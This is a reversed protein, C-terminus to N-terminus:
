LCPSNLSKELASLLEEDAVASALLNELDGIDGDASAPQCGKVSCLDIVYGRQQQRVCSLIQDPVVGANIIQQLTCTRKRPLKRVDQTFIGCTPGCNEDGYSLQDTFCVGFPQPGLGARWLRTSTLWIEAQRRYISTGLAHQWDAATYRGISQEPPTVSLQAPAHTCSTRGNRAHFMKVQLTPLYFMWCGQLVHQQDGDVQASNKGSIAISRYRAVQLPIATNSRRYRRFPLLM